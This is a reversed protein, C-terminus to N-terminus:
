EGLVYIVITENHFATNCREINRVEGGLPAQEGYTYFGILPVNKGIVEQIAAIEDGSDEGFLKKRAICNFVVIAKPEAGDLQGLAQKAAIRAMDIADKKSGIMLRIESGQPIEAACTISGHEDVSIPDRVLYEESGEVRLGLPYTIALKALTDERLEKAYDGFYDDYVNIAPKHDIEHVVAGESRTVKMPVGIPAWGHRVGIGFKVDGALGLGVVAGSFVKDDLYQYTQKFLFDDGAAGGVVPFHQGLVDLVGTVIEAGNGVLVDPFMLFGRLAKGDQLEKLVAEAVNRGATRPGDKINEGVGGVFRVTDSAIVMVAVSHEELPGDTTIEGSTSCGVVLSEKLVSRVGQLMKEQQFAVSSFVIAATVPMDTKLQSMADRCAAVGAEFPDQDHSQSRGVGVFLAM